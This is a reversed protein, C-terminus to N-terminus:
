GPDEGDADLRQRLSRYNELISRRAEDSLQAPEQDSLLDVTRRLSALFAECPACDANHEEIAGCLAPDLEEDLYESLRAFVERCQKSGHTHKDSL